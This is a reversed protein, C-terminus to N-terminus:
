PGPATLKRGWEAAAQDLNVGDEPLLHVRIMWDFDPLPTTVRAHPVGVRSHGASQSQDYAVYVGKTATPSFSVCVHFGSPVEVPAFPMIVWKEPGRAFLSYPKRMEAIVNMGADCIFISFDEPPPEAAGYRSGFLWVADVRWNGAPARFQIVHGSGGVSRKGEMAEDDYYLLLGADDARAQLGRFGALSDLNPPPGDFATRSELMREPILAGAAEDGTLKVLEARFLRVLRGGDPREALAAALARGVTARGYRKDILYLVHAAQAEPGSRAPDFGQMRREFRGPGGQEYYNHPQPWARQGLKEWVHGCIMAGSYDAWGEAVGDPIGVLSSMRRYMAIHGLEHCFGYVNFVGSLQPPQLDWEDSLQLFISADGDTWLRLPQQPDLSVHVAIRAPMELGYLDEYGALATDCIRAIAQAYAPDVKAYSVTTRDGAFTRPSPADARCSAAAIALVALAIFRIM